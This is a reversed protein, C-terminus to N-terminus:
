CWWDVRSKCVNATITMGIWREMSAKDQAGFWPLLPHYFCLPVFVDDHVLPPVPSSASLRPMDRAGADSLGCVYDVM